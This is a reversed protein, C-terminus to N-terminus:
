DGLLKWKEIIELMESDSFKGEKYANLLVQFLRDLLEKTM